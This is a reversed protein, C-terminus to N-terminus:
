LIEEPPLLYHGVSDFTGILLLFPECYTTLNKQFAPEFCCISCDWKRFMDMKLTDEMERFSWVWQMEMYMDVLM